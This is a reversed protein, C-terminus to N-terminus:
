LTRNCKKCIEINDFWDAPECLTLGEEKYTKCEPMKGFPLSKYTKSIHCNQHNNTQKEIEDAFKTLM